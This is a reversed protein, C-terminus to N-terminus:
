GCLTPPSSVDRLLPLGDDSGLGSGGRHHGAPPTLMYLLQSLKKPPTNFWVFVGVIHM